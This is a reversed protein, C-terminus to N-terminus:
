NKRQAVDSRHISVVLLPHPTPMRLSPNLALASSIHSVRLRTEFGKWTVNM